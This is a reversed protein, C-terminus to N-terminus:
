ARQMANFDRLIERMEDPTQPRDLDRLSPFFHAATYNTRSRGMASIYNAVISCLAGSRYDEQQTRLNRRHLLADLTRYSLRGFERGPIGLDVRAIAWLERM